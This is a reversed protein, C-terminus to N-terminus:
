ADNNVILRLYEKYSCRDMIVKRGAEVAHQAAEPHIVGEQLWIAPVKCAICEEVIEPVYKPARFVNVLDVAFPIDHLNKYVKEELIRDVAPRVPIIQYSFEQMAKSVRHSPRNAKPSLGVVAIKKVNKLLALIDEDDNIHVNQEM